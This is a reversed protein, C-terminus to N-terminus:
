PSVARFVSYYSSSYCCILYCMMGIIAGFSRPLLSLVLISLLLAMLYWSAGFTGGLFLDVLLPMGSYVVWCNLQGATLFPFYLLFWFVYLRGIRKLLKPIGNTPCDINKSFYFYSSIVFFLPVAVRAWPWVVLSMRTNLFPLTHIAVVMVALVLKVLDICDSSQKQKTCGISM